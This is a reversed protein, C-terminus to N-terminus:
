VISKYTNRIKYLHLKYTYLNTYINSQKNLCHNKKQYDIIELVAYYVSMYMFLYYNYYSKYAITLNNIMTLRINKLLIKFHRLLYHIYISMLEQLLNVIIYHLYQTKNYITMLINIHIHNYIIICYMKVIKHLHQKVQYNNKIRIITVYYQYM